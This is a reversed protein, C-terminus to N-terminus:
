IELWKGASWCGQYAGPAVRQPVDGYALFVNVSDVGKGYGHGYGNKHEELGSGIHWWKVM